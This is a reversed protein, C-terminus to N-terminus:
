PSPNLRALAARIEEATVPKNWIQQFGAAAADEAVQDPPSATYLVAPLAPSDLTQRLAALLACGDMDPLHLDIVLLDPAFGVALELAAAGTEAFQLTLEGAQRCSQELLLANVRDDEVCLLRVPAQKM